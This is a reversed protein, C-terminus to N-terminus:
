LLGLERARRVADSRRHVGLKSYINKIHFRATNASIFLEEAIETSSLHTNLLRLVDMERESLPETLTELKLTGPKLDSSPGTGSVQVMSDKFAALLQVVYEQAVGRRGAEELLGVMPEGEDVFIRVYGEPEALSLAHELATMAQDIDGQVRHALATLVHIEILMGPRGRREAIPVLSELLTLAEDPRELAILLRALVLLEYKRLRVDYSAEAEERLPSDIYKYLDREEAWRRAAEIEGEAVRMRAEFLAVSFDDLETLDFKLALEQAKRIAERAGDVHGQAQRVRALVIYAEFPGVETWRETLQIGEVLYRAAADLDGWERSLEGLGVLAQGAIPLWRGQANTALDLAKRYTAAAKHLQGQRMYLEAQNCVIMVAVMINGSSQSMRLVDDLVQVDVVGEGSALQSAHLIWTAFSRVFREDEPLQELARRSLEVALSVQGRFAAMLGRLATVQGALREGGREVDQVRTEVVEMPRGYLLLMWAHFLCLTPRARVLEDPLADVWRLFTTAQGRMLTPEANQEILDAARDLDEAALAHDIAGAMLGNQEYWRSARRHLVPVLDPHLRQLRSRLLDAFLRHYRYWERRADLPVVFLNARDLYELIARPEVDPVSFEAQGGDELGQDGIEAAVADCLPGCLRDLISTQFLFAQIHGPQRQLVEEILYDLIFRHGGTFDQVFGAADGERLLAARLAVAAMQLGAIWGETRSELAAVDDPTLDLGMVRNLFEAAEKSTFRLDPLRLETLQGRGRLRAVPLPPDARTAIAVHMNDPSHDLLFTVADHVPQATVLHYDDLVLVLNASITNVQNILGALFGEWPTPQPSQLVGPQGDGINEGVTQLAAVLYALFRAPDNDGEDLSLWAVRPPSARRTGIGCVWESLLTTKGFGAPASVLTLRHGLDLGEDLREILRPRSVLKPRVPPIYLKTQLLPM